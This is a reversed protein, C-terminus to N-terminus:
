NLLLLPVLFLAALSVVVVCLLNLALGARAMQPITLRGSGYVIANPPTAVPLMFACSACLVAPVTLALPSEGAQVAVVALIPLFTATTAINSTLETLFIVMSVVCVVLVAVHFMSLRGVLEGISAALGSSAVAAALALGGGFLVIIEWPLKKGDEWVLVPRGDPAGSPILFLSIGAILAIGADTLNELGPLRNLYARSVWAAAACIFVLAIRKEASSIVGMEGRMHSLLQETQSSAAIQVRFLVRTLLLWCLGLMLASLPLGLQMWKWFSIEMDYNDVLFGALMANPPTGILTAMGGISAAYAISLLLAIEFGRRKARPEDSSANEDIVTIVALAIPLLMVTTSTNTVWMSLMASAIMFGGILSRGDTGTLSLVGFAIRKHLNWREMAIAILFGGMLLYIVPHAYSPAVQKIAGIGLLPFLVLPLLATVAVSVAETMWWIAMWTAVAATRWALPELEGPPPLLLMVLGAFAGLPLGIKRLEM